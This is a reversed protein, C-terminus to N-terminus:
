FVADGNLEAQILNHVMGVTTYQYDCSVGAVVSYTFGVQHHSWRKRVSVLLDTIKLDARRLEALEIENVFLLANALAAYFSNFAHRPPALPQWVDPGFAALSQMLEATGAAPQNHMISHELTEAMENITAM